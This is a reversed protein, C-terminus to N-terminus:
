SFSPTLPFIKTPSQKTHPISTFPMVVVISCNHQKRVYIAVMYKKKKFIHLMKKIM